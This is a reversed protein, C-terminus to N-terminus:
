SVVVTIRSEGSFIIQNALINQSCKDITMKNSAKRNIHTLLHWFCTCAQQYRTESALACCAVAVIAIDLWTCTWRWVLLQMCPLLDSDIASSSWENVQDDSSNNGPTMVCVTLAKLSRPTVLIRSTYWRLVQLALAYAVDFIDRIYLVVIFLLNQQMRM